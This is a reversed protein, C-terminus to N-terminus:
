DGTHIWKYKMGDWIILNSAGESPAVEIAVFSLKVPKSGLIDMDETFTTEYAITDRYLKWVKLWQFDDNTNDFKAGAGLLFAVFTNGHIILIGKKNSDKESVFLAVDLISDGNLDCELYFPNLTNDINLIKGINIDNIKLKVWDPLNEKLDFSEFNISQTYSVTVCFILVIFLFPKKM